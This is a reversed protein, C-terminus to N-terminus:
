RLEQNVRAVYRALSLEAIKRLLPYKQLANDFAFYGAKGPIPKRRRIARSMADGQGNVRHQIGSYGGRDYPRTYPRPPRRRIGAVEAYDFGLPGAARTGGTLIIKLLSGRRAGTTFSVTKRPKGEWRTIGNTRNMGSIPAQSPISQRISEAYPDIKGRLERRLENYVKRDVQRLKNMDKKLNTVDVTTTIL